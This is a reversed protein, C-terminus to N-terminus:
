NQNLNLLSKISLNISVIAFFILGIPKASSLMYSTALNKQFPNIFPDIVVLADDRAKLKIKANKGEIILLRQDVLDQM